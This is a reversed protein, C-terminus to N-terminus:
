QTIDCKPANFTSHNLKQAHPQFNHMCACYHGNCGNTKCLLDFWKENVVWDVHKKGPIYLSDHSLYVFDDMMLSEGWNCRTLRLSGIQYCALLLTTVGTVRIQM